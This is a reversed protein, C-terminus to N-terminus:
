HTQPSLPCLLCPFLSGNGGRSFAIFAGSGFWFRPLLLAQLRITEQCGSVRSSPSTFSFLSGLTSLNEVAIDCCQTMIQYRNSLQDYCQQLQWVIMLTKAMVMTARGSCAMGNLKTGSDAELNDEINYVYQSIPHTTSHQTVFSFAGFSHKVQILKSASTFM